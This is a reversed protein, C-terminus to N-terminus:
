VKWGDRRRSGFRHASHASLHVDNAQWPRIANPSAHDFLEEPPPLILGGLALPSLDALRTARNARKTVLTLVVTGIMGMLVPVGLVAVLSVPYLLPEAGSFAAIFYVAEVVLGGFVDRASTLPSMELGSQWVTVNFAPVVFGAFALGTLLGTALRLSLFPTYLHPWHLDFFFANLGDMGMLAIFGMLTTTMARSPLRWARGRGIAIFYAAGILFGGFMGGMRAEIPMPQDGLFLTHSPRQPCVGFAVAWLFSMLIM